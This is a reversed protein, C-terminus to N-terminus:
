RSGGFFLTQQMNLPLYTLIMSNANIKEVQYTNDIKDGEKVAYNTTQRSLYIVTADGNDLRGVYKFSLAPPQPAVPPLSESVLPVTHPPPPPRYWTKGSFIDIITEGDLPKREHNFQANSQQGEDKPLQVTALPKRAKRDVVQVDVGTADEPSSQMAQWVTLALTIVLGGWLLWNKKQTETSM